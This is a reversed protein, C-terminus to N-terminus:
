AKPLTIIFEAFEGVNSEARITGGHAKRITKLSELSIDLTSFRRAEGIEVNLGSAFENMVAGPAIAALWLDIQKALRNALEAHDM